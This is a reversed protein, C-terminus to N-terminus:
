RGSKKHKSVGTYESTKLRSKQTIDTNVLCSDIEADANTM